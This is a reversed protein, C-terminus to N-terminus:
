KEDGMRIDPFEEAHYGEPAPVENRFMTDRTTPSYQFSNREDSILGSKLYRRTTEGRNKADFMPGHGKWKFTPRLELYTELVQREEATTWNTPDKLGTKEMAAAICEKPLAPLNVHNDLLLGIGFESTIIQNLTFGHAKHKWYFNQLRGLAHQVEVAQVHPDLGARWFRYVWDWNRLLKKEQRPKLKKGDLTLFGYTNGTDEAVDLGFQGFYMQFTDPYAAKIKKLLAPLEGDYEGVGLTWQFIGFSLFAGDYANIAELKGENDSVASMVNISSDTMALNKLLEGDSEIFDKITREGRTYLGHWKRKTDVNEPFRGEIHGDTVVHIKKRKQTIVEHKLEKTLPPITPKEDPKPAEPEPKPEEIKDKAPEPTPPAAPTPKTPTATATQTTTGANAAKRGIIRYIIQLILRLFNNM